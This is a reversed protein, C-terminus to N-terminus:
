KKERYVIQVDDIDVQVQRGTQGEAFVGLRLETGAGRGLNAMPKNELVPIGDVLMRVKTDSSEGTREIRVVVPVELKWEFGAVDTYPMQEEGRKMVRTQITNRAEDNHRSLTAEAEVQTEGQRATERAIFLGVRSNTGAHVTIRAELAVFAASSKKQWMRARGNGRFSGAMTVLGDHISFQPGNSEEVTWDNLLNNRDFSDTWAVKEVHDKIREIQARAWVRHPDNEPFARRNDDLERLRNLAETVNADGGKMYFCWALGNQATPQDKDLERVKRFTAEADNLSGLDLFNLGRLAMVQTLKPDLSIARELYREASAFDGRRHALEGLAALVDPFDLEQDLARKFCDQAGDLDDRSALIRGRQYLTWADTPNNELAMDAYRLADEPNNTIEALYSLTRWPIYARLPDAAAALLLNAKALKASAADAHGINALATAVLVEFGANSLDAVSALASTAGNAIVDGGSSSGGGALLAASIMGALARQEQPNAQRAKDFWESAEQLEGTALLASGLDVRMRARDYKSEPGSPESQNALRLHAVAEQARGRELLFRGFGYQVFFQTRGYREAELFHQEADDFMRFRAEIMAMCVLVLPNRSYPGALLAKYEQFAKEFQFGAEFCRALGLRPVPDEKLVPVARKFMEEAVELARPTDLRQDLCWRAFLIAQDYEGATLPDSFEARRLEIQNLVTDAFGFEAVNARKIPIPAQGPLRPLGTAPNFEVFLIDEDPHKALAYRDPNRIQGFKVDVIRLWDYLKKYGAVRAAREEPSLDAVTRADSAPAAAAPEASESGEPTEQAFLNPADFPKVEARLLRGYLKVAPGPEPPPRLAALPVLPPTVLPLPPLPHTDSPPAFLERARGPDVGRADPERAEPMVLKVDPAPHHAFAPSEAKKARSVRLGSGSLASWALYGM